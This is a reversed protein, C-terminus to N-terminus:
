ESFLGLFNGTKSQMEEVQRLESVAAACHGTCSHFLLSMLAAASVPHVAVEAPCFSQQQKMISISLIKNHLDVAWDRAM